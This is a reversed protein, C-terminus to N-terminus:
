VGEGRGKVVCAERGNSLLFEWRELACNREERVKLGDVIGHVPLDADVTQADTERVLAAAVAARVQRIHRALLTPALFFRNDTQHALRPPTAALALPPSDLDLDHPILPLLNTKRPILPLCPPILDILLHFISM